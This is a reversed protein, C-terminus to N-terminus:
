CRRSSTTRWRRAAKTRTSIVQEWESIKSSLDGDFRFALINQLAGVYRAGIRPEYHNRLRRWAELGNRDPVVMLQRLARGGLLQALLGYLLVAGEQQRGGMDSFPIETDGINGAMTIWAAIEPSYICMFNQFVFSWELWRAEAGDFRPPKQVVRRDVLEPFAAAPPAHFGEGDATAM